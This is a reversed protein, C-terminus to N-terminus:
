IEDALHRHRDQRRCLAAKGRLGSLEDEEVGDRIAARHAFARGRAAPWSGQPHRCGDRGGANENAHRASYAPNQEPLIRWMTLVASVCTMLFAPSFDRTRRFEM